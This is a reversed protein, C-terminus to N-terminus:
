SPHIKSGFFAIHENTFVSRPLSYLLLRGAFLLLFGDREKLRTLKDYEITSSSKASFITMSEDAIAVAVKTDPYLRTADRALRRIQLQVRLFIGILLVGMVGAVLLLPNRYLFYGSFGALSILVGGILAFSLRGVSEKHIVRASARVMEESREYTVTDNM